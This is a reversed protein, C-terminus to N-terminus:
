QPSKQYTSQILTAIEAPEIKRKLAFQLAQELETWGSPSSINSTVTASTMENLRFLLGELLEEDGVDVATQEAMTLLADSTAQLSDTPINSLPLPLTLVRGANLLDALEKADAVGPAIEVRIWANGALLFRTKALGPQTDQFLWTTGTTILIPIVMKLDDLPGADHWRHLVDCRLKGGEVGLHYLLGALRKASIVQEKGRLWVSLNAARIGTATGLSNLTDGRLRMLAAALLPLQEPQLTSM